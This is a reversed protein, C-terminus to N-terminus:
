PALRLDAATQGPLITSLSRWPPARTARVAGFRTLCRMFDPAFMVDPPKVCGGGADWGDATILLIPGSPHALRLDAISQLELQNVVISEARLANSLADPGPGTDKSFRSVITPGNRLVFITPAAPDTKGSADVLGAARAAAEVKHAVEAEFVSQRVGGDYYARQDDPGGVRVQQFFVPMAVSSMVAGAICQQAEASPLAALDKVAAYHLDGDVSDVFGIFVDPAEPRALAAIMPCGQAPDGGTCLAELLARRLPKLGAISGTIAAQWQANRNVVDNERLPAYYRQMAEIAADTGVALFLAQLAGTSVGTITRPRPFNPAGPAARLASLFGVGFAGWQGGGSLLLVDRRPSGAGAALQLRAADAGNRLSRGLPDALTDDERQPLSAPRPGGAAVDAQIDQVLRSKPVPHVKTAFGPCNLSIAGRTACGSLSLGVLAVLITRWM